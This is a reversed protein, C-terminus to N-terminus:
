DDIDQGRSQKDERIEEIDDESLQRESLPIIINAQDLIENIEPEFEETDIDELATKLFSKPLGGKLGLHDDHRVFVKDSNGLDVLADVLEEVTDFKQDPSFSGGDGLFEAVQELNEYKQM